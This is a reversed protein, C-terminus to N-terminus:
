SPARLPRWVDDDPARETDAGLPVAQFWDGGVHWQLVRGNEVVRLPRALANEVFRLVDARMDESLDQDISADYGAYECWDVVKSGTSRDNVEVWWEPVVRPILVSLSVDARAICLEVHGETESMTVGREDIFRGLDAILHQNM